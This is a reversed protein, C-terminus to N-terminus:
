TGYKVILYVNDVVDYTFETVEHLKKQELIYKICNWRFLDNQWKTFGKM